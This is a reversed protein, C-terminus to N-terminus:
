ITKLGNYFVSVKHIVTHVSFKEEAKGISLVIEEKATPKKGFFIHNVVLHRLTPCSSTVVCKDTIICYNSIKM